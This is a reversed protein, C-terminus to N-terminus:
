LEGDLQWRSATYLSPYRHPLSVDMCPQYKRLVYLPVYLGDHRQRDAPIPGSRTNAYDYKRMCRACSATDACRCRCSLEGDLQWRSATYLRPYRHYLYVDM